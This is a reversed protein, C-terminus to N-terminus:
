PNRTIVPLGGVFVGVETTSINGVQDVVTLRITYAGSPVMDTNWTGLPGSWIPTTSEVITVTTGPVGTPVAELRYSAFRSDTAQGIVTVTGTLVTGSVPADIRAVPPTADAPQARVRIRVIRSNGTDAVYLASEDADLAAGHPQRFLSLTTSAPPLLTLPALRSGFVTGWTVRNATTDPVFWNGSAGVAPEYPLGFQTAGTGAGGYSALFKGSATFMQIRANGSDAVFVHGTSPDIGVGTPRTFFGTASGQAGWSLGATGDPGIMQITHHLTDAVYVRGYKDVALGEPHLFRGALKGRGGFEGLFAGSSSLRTIIGDRRDLVVITNDPAVGLSVPEGFSVAGKGQGAVEFLLQGRDTYKQIRRNQTDAIWVYGERDVVVDMPQRHEGPARGRASFSDISAVLFSGTTITVLSRAVSTRGCKDQVTLEIEYVGCGPFTYSGNGLLGEPGAVADDFEDDELVASVPETQLVRLRYKEFQPSAAEGRVEVPLASCDNPVVQNSAPWTIVAQIAPAPAAVELTEIESQGTADFVTLRLMQPGDSTIVATGLEGAVVPAVAETILEFGSGRDIELRYSVFNASSATGTIPYSNGSCAFQGDVLGGVQLTTVFAPQHYALAAAPDSPRGAIGREDVVAVRYYFTVGPAPHDIHAETSGPPLDTIPEGVGEPHNSRYIRYFRGPAMGGVPESWALSVQEVGGVAVMGTAAPLVSTVAILRRGLADTGTKVFLDGGAAIVSTQGFATDGLLLSEDLLAGTAADYTYLYGKDVAVHLRSGVLIPDRQDRAAPPPEVSWRLAGTDLRYAAVVRDTERDASALFVHGDGIAPRALLGGTGPISWAQSGDTLRFARVGSLGRDQMVVVYGDAIVIAPADVSGLFASWTVKPDSLSRCVLQGNLHVVCLMGQAVAVDGTSGQSVFETGKPPLGSPITWKITRTILDVVTIADFSAFAALRGYVAPTTRSTNGVERVVTWELVGTAANVAALGQREQVYLMGAVHTPESYFFPNGPAEPTPAQTRWLLAGSAANRAWLEGDSSVAFVVGDVCIAGVVTAPSEDLGGRGAPVVWRVGLPLAIDAGGAEGRRGADRRRMPWDALRPTASVPPAADGVGGQTDVPRLRYTYRKDNVVSVDSYAAPGAPAMAITRAEEDDAWRIVEVMSVPVASTSADWELRVVGAGGTAAVQALTAASAPVANAEFSEQGQIGRDDVARVVYICSAGVPVTPPAMDVFLRVDVGSLEAVRHFPEFIGTLGNPHRQLVTRYVNFGAVGLSSPAPPAWTVENRDGLAVAAVSDPRPLVSTVAAVLMDRTMFYLNEDGASPYALSSAGAADCIGLPAGTDINLSYVSGDSTQVHIAGESAIVPGHALVLDPGYTTGEWIVEGTAVSLAQVVSRSGSAVFVAEGSVAIGGAPNGGHREWAQAGDSARLAITRGDSLSVLLVEGAASRGIAAAGVISAGIHAVWQFEGSAADRAMVTGDPAVVYLHSGSALYGEELVGNYGPDLWAVSRTALDFAIIHKPPSVMEIPDDVTAFVRGEHLLLPTGSSFGMGESTPISWLFEGTAADRAELGTTGAVFIMGAAYVPVRNWASAEPGWVKAGTRANHAMIQGAEAMWYVTGSVAIVQSGTTPHAPGGGKEEKKEEPAIGTMWRLGMPGSLSVSGAAATHRADRQFSPWGAALPTTQALAPVSTGGGSEVVVVRYAYTTDNLVRMDLCEIAPGTLTALLSEQGAPLAARFVQVEAITDAGQDINWNLRVFNDGATAVLDTVRVTGAAVSFTRTITSTHGAGDTAQVVLTYDGSGSITIGSAVPAGNLTAAVQAQTVDDVTFTLTAPPNAEAGDIILQGDLRAAIAPATRDVTFSRAATSMATGRHGVAEIAYAGDSLTAHLDAGSVTEIVSGNRRLVVTSTDAGRVLVELVGNGSPVTSGDIVPQGDLEFVIRPVLDDQGLVAIGSVGANAVRDIAQVEYTLTTFTLGEMSADTFPGAALLQPGSILTRSAANGDITRYVRYGATDDEPVAPWSLVAIGTAADATVGPMSPPTNDLRITRTRTPEQNLVRDRSFFTVPYEGDALGTVAIPEIFDQEPQGDVKFRSEKLGSGPQGPAVVPDIGQVALRTASSIRLVAGEDSSPGSNVLLQSAPPTLDTTIRFEISTAVNGVRDTARITLKHLGEAPFAVPAAYPMFGGDDMKIELYALGVGDDRGTAGFSASLGGFTHNTGGPATPGFPIVALGVPVGTDVNVTWTRRSEANGLEDIAKFAITHLGGTAFSIAGGPVYVQTPEAAGIDVGWLIRDVGSAAGVPGDTAVLAYSFSAPAFLGGAIQTVPGSALVASAPPTGDVGLAVTRLAALGVRDTATLDLAHPGQAIGSIPGTVPAVPGGDLRATSTAVGAGAAGGSVPDAASVTLSGGLKLFTTDDAPVGPTGGDSTVLAPNGVLAFAPAADDGVLTVATSVEPMQEPDEPCSVGRFTLATAGAAIPGFTAPVPVVVEPAGALSYAVCQAGGAPAELTFTAADATGAARVHITGAGDARAGTVVLRITPMAGDIITVSFTREVEINGVNDTARWTITRTGLPLPGVAATAANVVQVGGGDVRYSIRAVGSGPGNGVAPDAAQLTFTTLPGAYRVVGNDAFTGVAAISTQPAGADVRFSREVATGANGVRDSGEARVIYVGEAAPLPVQLTRVATDLRDLPSSVVPVNAGVTVRITGAGSGPAGGFPPDQLSAAVATGPLLYIGGGSAFGAGPPANLQVVPPAADVRIVPHQAPEVHGLHDESSLEVPQPGETLFTIPDGELVVSTVGGRTVRIEKVGAGAGDSASVAVVPQGTLPVGLYIVDADTKFSPSGPLLITRPATMDAYFPLVRLPEANEVRDTARYRLTHNGETAVATTLLTQPQAPGTLDSGDASGDFKSLVGFAGSGGAADVATLTIEIAGQDNGAEPAAFRRSDSPRVYVPGSFVAATEPALADVIFVRVDSGTNGVRDDGELFLSVQGSSLGTFPIAGPTDSFSGTTGFRFRIAGIGSGPTGAAGPIAPDAFVPVATTRAASVYPFGEGTFSPGILNVGALTPRGADAHIVTAVHADEVAGVVGYFVLDHRGEPLPFSFPGPGSVPAQTGIQYHVTVGPGTAALTLTAPQDGSEAGVYRRGTADIWMQPAVSLVVHPVPAATVTAEFTRLEEVNGVRDVARYEVKWSGAEALPISLSGTPFTAVPHIVFAAGVGGDVRSGDRYVRVELRDVSAGGDAPTLVLATAAGAPLYLGAGTDAIEVSPQAATAPPADDLTVSYTLAAVHGARDTGSIALTRTGTGTFQRTKTLANQETGDIVLTLPGSNAGDVTAQDDVLSITHTVSSKAYRSGAAQFVPGDATVVIRPPKADVILTTVRTPGANGVADVARAQITHAGEDGAGARLVAPPVMELHVRPYVGTPAAPVTRVVFPCEEDPVFDRVFITAIGSGTFGDDASVPIPAGQKIFSSSAPLGVTPGVDDVTVATQRVVPDGGLPSVATVVVAFQGSPVIVGGIRGDWTVSDPEPGVARDQTLIRTGGPGQVKVTVLADATVRYTITAADALGDANKPSIAGPSAVLSDVKLTTVLWINPVGSRSSEFAVAGGDPSVAPETDAFGGPNALLVRPQSGDANVQWLTPATAMRRSVFVVQAGAAAATPQTETNEATVPGERGTAPEFFRINDVYLADRYFIKDGSQWSPERLIRQPDNFVLTPTSGEMAPVRWLDDGSEFYVFEGDPSWTPHREAGEASTLRVPPGGAAGVLYLDTKGDFTREFVIEDATPSWAPHTDSAPGGGDDQTIQVPAASLEQLNDARTVFLRDGALTPRVFVLRDGDPAWAPQRGGNITLLLAGGRSFQDFAATFAWSLPAQLTNGALDKAEDVSVSVLEGNTVAPPQDRVLGPRFTVRGSFPEYGFGGDAPGFSRGNFTVRITEVDVGAGGQNDRVTFSVEGPAGLAGPAPTPASAIPGVNDVRIRYHNTLGGNGGGDIARVHLYLEGSGNALVEEDTFAISTGAVSPVSPPVEGPLASLMASYGVIGSPDAPATWTFEPSLDRSGGETVRINDLWYFSGVPNQQAPVLLMFGKLTYNGILIRSVTANGIAARLDFEARRWTGDTVIGALSGVTGAYRNTWSVVDIKQQETFNIHHWLNGVQVWIALKLGPEGPPPAPIRYDFSLIPYVATSFPEAVIQASFSSRVEANVLKIAWAGTAAAGSELLVTVGPSAGTVATNRGDEFTEQLHSPHSASTVIPAVPATADEVTVADFVGAASESEVRVTEGDAGAVIANNARDTAAALNLVGRFVGSDPATEVLSLLVGASESVTSRARVLVTELIGSDGTGLAQVGVRGGTDVCCEGLADAYDASRLEVSGAVVVPSARTVEVAASNPGANGAADVAHARLTTLGVDLTVGTVVAFGDAGSVAEGVPAFVSEDPRQAALLVRVGPETRVRVAIVPEATPSAPAVIVPAVPPTVDAFLAYLAIFEGIRNIEVSLSRAGADHDAAMPMWRRLRVDWAYLGIKEAPIDALGDADTDLDADTYKMTLTAPRNFRLGAPRAEYAQGVLRLGRAQFVNLSRNMDQIPFLAIIQFSNEIALSPVALEIREDASFSRGNFAQSILRGVIIVASDQATRNDVTEVKLKLTFVGNLGPFETYVPEALSGLPIYQYEDRGVDLTGLNGSMTSNPNPTLDGLTMIREAFTTGLNQLLAGNISRTLTLTYSKFLRASATGIIAVKGRLLAESSPSVIQATLNRQALPGRGAVIRSVADTEGDLIAIDSGVIAAAVPSGPLGTVGLVTGESSLKVLRKGASDVIYVNGNPDRTLDSPTWGLSTFPLSSRGIITTISGASDRRIVQMDTPVAAHIEWTFGGADAPLAPDAAVEAPGPLGATAAVPELRDCDILGGEVTGFQFHYLGDPVQQGADSKGDWVANQQLGGTLPMPQGAGDSVLWRVHQNQEDVIRLSVPGSQLPTFRITAETYDDGVAPDIPQVAALLDRNEGSTGTKDWFVQATPSVGFVHFAIGKIPVHELGLERAPIKLRVWGGAAPLGGMQRLSNTGLVGTTQINPVGWFARHEGDGAATFFQMMIQTVGPQLYVYQVILNNNIADPTLPDDAHIFYHVRHGAGPGSTHSQQGSFVPSPVWSFGGEPLSTAGAPLDAAEDLYAEPTDPVFVGTSTKLVTSTEEVEIRLAALSEPHRITFEVRRETENGARDIVKLIVLAPGEPLDAPLEGLVGGFVPFQSLSVGRFQGDSPVVAIAYQLFNVDSATGMIKISRGAGPWGELRDIEAVPLTEDVRIKSLLSVPRGSTLGRGDAVLQYEGDSVVNSSDGRGDWALIGGDELRANSQLTRIVFGNSNVIRATVLAPEGFPVPIAVADSVGPSMEPSIFHPIGTTPVDSRVAGGEMFSPDAFFMRPSGCILGYADLGWVYNQGKAANWNAWYKGSPQQVAAPGKMVLAKMWEWIVEKTPEDTADIVIGINASTVSVGNETVDKTIVMLGKNPSVLPAMGKVVMNAGVSVLDGDDLLKFIISFIGVGLLDPSVCSPNGAPEDNEGPPDGGPDGSPGGPGGSPGGPDGGPGGPDGGPGGPDGGPGGPDGGPGGTGGGGDDGGDPDSGTSSDDGGPTPAPPAPPPEPDGDPDDGDAACVPADKDPLLYIDSKSGPISEGSVTYTDPPVCGTGGGPITDCGNRWSASVTVVGPAVEEPLLTDGCLSVNARWLRSASGKTQPVADSYSLRVTEGSGLGVQVPAVFEVATVPSSFELDLTGKGQAFTGYTIAVLAAPDPYKPVRVRSASEEAPYETCGAVQAKVRLCLYQEDLCVDNLNITGTFSQAPVTPNQLAVIKGSPELVEVNQVPNSFGITIAFTRGSIPTKGITASAIRVEGVRFKVITDNETPVDANCNNPTSVGDDDRLRVDIEYRGCPLYVGGIKGDFPMDVLESYPLGLEGSASGFLHTKSISGVAVGVGDPGVRSFTASALVRPTRNEMARFSITLGNTGDLVDRSIALGVVLPPLSRSILDLRNETAERALYLQGHFIRRAGAAAVTPDNLQLWDGGPTSPLTCGDDSGAFTPSQGYAGLFSFGPGLETDGDENRDLWFPAMCDTHDDPFTSDFSLSPPTADDHLIGFIGGQAEMHDFHPLLGYPSLLAITSGPELLYPENLGHFVVKQHPPSQYDQILHTVMGFSRYADQFDMAQYAERGRLEWGDENKYWYQFLDIGFADFHSTENGAMDELLARYQVMDPLEGKSVIRAFAHESLTRHTNFDLLPVDWEPWEPSAFARVGAPLLGVVTTFAGVLIFSIFKM